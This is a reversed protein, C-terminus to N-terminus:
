VLPSGWLVELAIGNANQDQLLLSSQLLPPPPPPPPSKTSIRVPQAILQQRQRRLALRVEPEHKLDARRQLMEETRAETRRLQEPTPDALPRSDSWHCEAAENREGKRPRSLGM